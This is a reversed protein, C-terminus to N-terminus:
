FLLKKFQFKPFFIWTGAVQMLNKREFKFIMLIRFVRQWRSWSGNAILETMWWGFFTSLFINSMCSSTHLLDSSLFPVCLIFFFFRVVPFYRSNNSTLFDRVNKLKSKSSDAFYKKGGTHSIKKENWMSYSGYETGKKIAVMRSAREKAPQNKKRKREEHLAPLRKM